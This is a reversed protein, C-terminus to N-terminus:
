LFLRGAGDARHPDSGRPARDAAGSAPEM